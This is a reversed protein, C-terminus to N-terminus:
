GPSAPFPSKVEYDMRGPLIAGGQQLADSPGEVDLGFKAYIMVSGRLQVLVAPVPRVWKLAM